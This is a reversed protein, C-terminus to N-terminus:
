ARPTSSQQRPVPRGGPARACCSWLITAFVRGYGRECSPACIATCPAGPRFPRLPHCIGGSVAPVCSTFCATWCSECTQRGTRVLYFLGDLLKRVDTTRPRGGPKAPPILPELLSFQDDTLAQGSGFDGVLARDAPTWM